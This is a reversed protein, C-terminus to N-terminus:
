RTVEAPTQSQHHGQKRRQPYFHPSNQNHPGALKEISGLHYSTDFQIDAIETGPKDVTQERMKEKERNVISMGVKAVVDATSDCVQLQQNEKDIYRQDFTALSYLPNKQALAYMRYLYEDLPLIDASEQFYRLPRNKTDLNIGDKRTIIGEKLLHRKIQDMQVKLEGLIKKGSFDQWLMDLEEPTDIVDKKATPRYYAFLADYITSLLPYQFLEVDQPFQSYEDMQLPVIGNRAIEILRQTSPYKFKEALTNAWIEKPISQDDDTVKHQKQLDRRQIYPALGHINDVKVAFLHLQQPNRGNSQVLTSILPAEFDCELMRVGPYNNTLLRTLNLGVEEEFERTAAKFADGRDLRDVDGKGIGYAKDGDSFRGESWPAVVMIQNKGNEDKEVSYIILGAKQPYRTNMYGDHSIM